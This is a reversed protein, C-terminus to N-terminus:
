RGMVGQFYIGAVFMALGFLILLGNRLAPPFRGDEQSRYYYLKDVAYDFDKCLETILRPSAQSKFTDYSSMAESKRRKKLEASRDTMEAQLSDTIDEHAKSAKAWLYSYKEKDLKREM